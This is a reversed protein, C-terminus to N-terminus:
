AGDSLKTVGGAGGTVLVLLVSNRQLQFLAFIV